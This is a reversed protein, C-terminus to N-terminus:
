YFTKAQMIAPLSSPLFPAPCHPFQPKLDCSRSVPTRKNTTVTAKPSSRGGWARPTGGSLRERSTQSM